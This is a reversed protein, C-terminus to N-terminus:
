FDLFRAVPSERRYDLYLPSPRRKVLIKVRLVSREDVCTQRGRRYWPSAYSPPSMAPTDLAVEAVNNPAVEVVSSTKDPTFRRPLRMRTVPTEAPRPTSVARDRAACPALTTPAARSKFLALAAVSCTRFSAAALPPLKSNISSSRPLRFLTRAQASRSSAFPFGNSTTM